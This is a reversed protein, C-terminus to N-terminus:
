FKYRQEAKPVWWTEVDKIVSLLSPKVGRFRKDLAFYEARWFLFTYPQDEYIIRLLKKYATKETELDSTNLGENILKDAEPNSYDTFNFTRPKEKTSTMWIDSPDPFLGASWGSIAAEYEKKRLNGFFTTGEMYELNVLVGLKDLEEKVVVGMDQRRPNGSNTLLTFTFKKGDKDLVGDNDSDTWGAEAFLAKAKAPDYPLLKFDPDHYDKLEPTFTSYAPMATVEGSATTLYARIFRQIDISMTLARRVRRDKFLDNQQNWAIYDMFRYGRRYIKVNPYSRVSEIDKVQISEVLDVKGSKLEAIRTAYEPIIKIEIRNIRPVEQIKCAPNRSIRISQDRKWDLLRFPGHGVPMVKNLRHEKLQARDADLLLHKPVPNMGAHSMMTLFNYDWKYNFRITYDDLVEYPKADDMRDTYPRRPSLTEPDRILEYSFAYDWATLPKGDDWLLGKRLHFTIQKKDESQEWSEALGPLHVLRGEKFDSQNIPPMLLDMIAGGTATEAVPPFFGDADSQVAWVLTDGIDKGDDVVDGKVSPAKGNGGSNAPAKKPESDCSALTLLGTAFAGLLLPLPRTLSIM